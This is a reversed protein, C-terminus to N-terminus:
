RPFHQKQEIFNFGQYQFQPESVPLPSYQPAGQLRQDQRVSVDYQRNRTSEDLEKPLEQLQIGEDKGQRFDQQNNQQTEKQQKLTEQLSQKVLPPQPLTKTPTQQNTSSARSDLSRQLLYLLPRFNFGDQKRNEQSPLGYISSLTVLLLLCKILM